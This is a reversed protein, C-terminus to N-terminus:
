RGLQARAADAVSQVKLGIVVQVSNKGPRIVAKGGAKKIVKDDVAGSDKVEVRLRTICNELSLINDKGGLGRIVGLIDVGEVIKKQETEGAKKEEETM